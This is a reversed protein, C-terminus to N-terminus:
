KEDKTKTPPPVTEGRLVRALADPQDFADRQTDVDHDGVRWRLTKSVGPSAAFYGSPAVALWEAPTSPDDSPPQALTVRSKGSEADWVRVLGDWGGAAVVAGDDSLAAAYQWPTAGNLTKLPAGTRGDWLRVSGDSGTSVLRSGDGSFALQQVTGSHGGRRNEPKDGDAAWWRIQPEHGATVFKGGLPSVALALVDDDHGSYTRLEKLTSADVRKVSRDKSVSLLTKGDRDFAVDYVFDSHGRFVGAPRGEVVDWLRVSQDFSASALLGGDRRFALGFVADTHGEFDFLLAGGPVDYVRVSGSRAPLGSGVALRKGDRGFALAHVPGPMGGLVRAPRGEVLDWLVVAGHSGVALLRGDGRFALATVSPLPGVKSAVRLPGGPGKADVPIVVDLPRRVRRSTKVVTEVAAVAEGKPAGADVWRALTKRDGESLPKDFLPMREDEDASSLRRILESDAAKNVVVVPRGKAGAMVAKYSDLALGASVDENALTKAAHCVICRKALIPRVDREYTPPDDARAPASFGAVAALAALRLSLIPTKCRNM